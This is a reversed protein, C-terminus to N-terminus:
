PPRCTETHFGGRLLKHSTTRSSRAPGTQATSARPAPSPWSSRRKEWTIRVRQQTWMKSQRTDQRGHPAPGVLGRRLDQVPPSTMNPNPPGIGSRRLQKGLAQSPATSRRRSSPSTEPRETTSTRAGASCCACVWPKACRAPLSPDGRPGNWSMSVHCRTSAMAAVLLAPSRAECARLHGSSKVTTICTILYLYSASPRMQPASLAM